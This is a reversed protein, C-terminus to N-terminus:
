YSYTVPLKSNQLKLMVTLTLATIGEAANFLIEPALATGNYKVLGAGIASAGAPTKNKEIEFSYMDIVSASNALIQTWYTKATTAFTGYTGNAIAATWFTGAVDGFDLDVDAGAATITFRVIQVARKQIPEDIQLPFAEFSTLAFAM